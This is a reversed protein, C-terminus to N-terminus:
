PMSSSGSRQAAAPDDQGSQHGWPSSLPADPSSLPADPAM